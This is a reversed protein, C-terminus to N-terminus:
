MLALFFYLALGWIREPTFSDYYQIILIPLTSPLLVKFIDRSRILQYGSYIGIGWFLISMLTVFFIHDNIPKNNFLLGLSIALRGGLSALQGLATEEGTIIRSLHTPIMVITYLVALWVQGSRKFKSLGLGLGLITGLVALSEVYGLDPTWNTTDLRVSSTFLASILLAASAWDWRIHLNAKM